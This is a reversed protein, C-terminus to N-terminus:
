INGDLRLCGAQSDQNAVGYAAGHSRQRYGDGLLPLWLALLLLAASRLRCKGRGCQALGTPRFIIAWPALRTSNRTQSVWGRFPAFPNARRRFFHPCLKKILTTTVTIPPTPTRSAASSWAAAKEPFWAPCM